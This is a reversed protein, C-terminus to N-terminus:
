DFLLDDAYDVDTAATVEIRPEANVRAAQRALVSDVFASIIEQRESPTAPMGSAATRAHYAAREALEGVEADANADTFRAADVELFSQVFVPFEKTDRYPRHQVSAVVPALGMLDERLAKLQKLSAALSEVVAVHEGLSGEVARGRAKVLVNSVATIRRDVSEITNDFWTDNTAYLEKIKAEVSAFDPRSAHAFM